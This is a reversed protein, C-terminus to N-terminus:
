IEFNFYPNSYKLLLKRKNNVSMEFGKEAMMWSFYIDHFKFIEYIQGNENAYDQEHHDFFQPRLLPLLKESTLGGGGRLWDLAM